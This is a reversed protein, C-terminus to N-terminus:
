GSQSSPENAVETQVDVEVVIVVDVVGLAVSSKTVLVLWSPSPFCVPPGAVGSCSDKARHEFSSISSSAGFAFVEV